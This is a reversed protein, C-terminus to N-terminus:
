PLVEITTLEFAFGRSQSTADVVELREGTEPNYVGITIPYVGSPTAPDISVRFQGKGSKPSAM